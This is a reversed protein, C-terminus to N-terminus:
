LLFVVNYYLMCNLLLHHHNLTGTGIKVLIIFNDRRKRPTGKRHQLKEQEKSEHQKKSIQLLFSKAAAIEDRNM